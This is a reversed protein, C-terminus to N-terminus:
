FLKKQAKVLQTEGDVFKRLRKMFDLSFEYEKLKNTLYTIAKKDIDRLQGKKKIFRIKIEEQTEQKVESENLLLMLDELLFKTGQFQGNILTPIRKTNDDWIYLNNNFPNAKIRVAKVGSTLRNNLLSISCDNWVPENILYSRQYYFNYTEKDVRKIERPKTIM